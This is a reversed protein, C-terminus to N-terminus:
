IGSRSRAPQIRSAACTPRSFAVAGYFERTSGDTPSTASPPPVGPTAPFPCELYEDELTSRQLGTLKPDEEGTGLDWGKTFVQGRGPGKYALIFRRGDRRFWVSMGGPVVLPLSTRLNWIKATGELGGSTLERGDPSFAVAQV